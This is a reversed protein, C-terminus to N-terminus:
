PPEQLLQTLQTVANAMASETEPPPADALQRVQDAGACCQMIYAISKDDHVHNYKYKRRIVQLAPRFESGYEEKAAIEVNALIVLALQADDVTIGYSRMRGAKARLVEVNQNVKKRFDLPYKIIGSLLRLIDTTAPRDAGSIAADAVEYLEYEDVGKYDTGDPTCLVADTVATGVKAVIGKTAGEKAGIVAQYAQNLRNAEAQADVRTEIEPDVTTGQATSEARAKAQSEALVSAVTAAQTSKIVSLASSNIPDASSTMLAEMGNGADIPNFTSKLVRTVGGIFTVIDDHNYQGSANKALSLEAIASITQDRTAGRISFCAEAM